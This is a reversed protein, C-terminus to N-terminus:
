DLRAEPVYARHLFTVIEGRSCIKSPSFGSGTGNTVGNEVAWDVADAYDAGAPVDSFSSSEANQSGLAQWIYNVTSARTCPTNPKFGDGIMGKERAWDVAEQMDSASAEGEGRDARYLMTLIQAETCTTTPSFTEDGTGNTIESDVAWQVSDYYYDGIHVDEFPNLGELEFTLKLFGWKGNKEIAAYEDVGNITGLLGTQRYEEYDPFYVSMALDETGLVAPLVGNVPTNLICYARKGDFVAALNNYFSSAITINSAVGGEPTGIQYANNYKDIYFWKGDKEVAALDDSFSSMSDYELPIIEKGSTNVAGWKEGDKCVTWLGQSFYTGDYFYRYYSYVPSVAWSGDARMAGVGGDWDWDETYGGYVAVILGSDDPAYVHDIGKIGPKEYEYPPLAREFVRTINGEADMFFAQSGSGYATVSIVGNVCPGEVGFYEIYGVDLKDTNRPVIETGDPRFAHGYVYVVGDYFGWATSYDEPDYFSLPMNCEVYYNYAWLAIESGDAKVLYLHYATDEWTDYGDNVIQTDYKASVAVGKRFSGAVDYKPEIVMKGTLDIYGWKEGVKVPAYSVDDSVSGFTGVEDYVPNVLTEVKVTSVKNDSAASSGAAFATGPLLGVATVAALLMVLVKKRM